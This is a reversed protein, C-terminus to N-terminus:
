LVSMIILYFAFFVSTFYEETKKQAMQYEYYPM